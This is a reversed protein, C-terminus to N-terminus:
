SEKTIKKWYRDGVEVFRAQDGLWRVRLLANYNLYLRGNYISWATPDSQVLYGNAAGYACHGGYAPIYAEPNLRFKAANDASSFYWDIGYYEVLFVPLGRKAAGDFYAVVDYGNIAAGTRADVYVPEAAYSFGSCWVILALLFNRM